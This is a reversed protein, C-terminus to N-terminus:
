FKGQLGVYFARGQPGVPYFYDSWTPEQNTLNNVGGYVSFREDYTYRLQVDHLERAPYYWQDPAVYDPENEMTARSFRRTEDFYSLGYNLAFDHWTWTADFTIQLEPAGIGGLSNTPAATGGQNFTLEKLVNGILRFDFRGVDHTIGFDAPDLRYNVTFDYGRTTYVAINQPLQEFSVIRGPNFGSDTREILDCFANPQPLDYCNNVITQGTFSQIADSIEIDYYDVSVSLGRVFKQPTFVFGWTQTEATEPELDPNGSIFGAVAESSNNIFTDPDVGLATLAAACNEERLAPNEGDGLNEVSCPDSFTSFTQTRGLFLDSINPARVARAKTGRLMVWDNVHWKGGYNWTTTEGMNSYDSWRYAGTLEVSQAFPLDRVIPVQIETFAERVDFLGRTRVGRGLTSFGSIDLSEALLEIDSPIYDSKEKRYEAGLVFSVPGAPLSFWQTSNGSVFATVVDQTIESTSEDETNIWDIAAPDAVGDGFINLPLCGSNPGPTFTTGFTAPDFEFQGFVDGVPAASPDLNSRCVPDGDDDLVVDTAALFRENIRVNHAFLDQKAKGHVASVELRLTDSLKLEAGGAIRVTERSVDYNQTGLDFNDRAVLIFDGFGGPAEAGYVPDTIVNEPIFPNDTTVFLGYEYSPQAYFGTETQVFKAEGFLTMVPSAEYRGSVNFTHREVGPILDDNFLDLLSGSGGIMFFGGAYEGDIFPDGNGLFAVGSTSPSEDFGFGTYISGAPNTDIYRVNTALVNDYIDPDDDDGFTGPDEPNSILIVREGPYTYSRDRFTLRDQHNYEYAATLNLREDFFNHGIVGSFFNSGGGGEDTWTHQARADVGEFNKKMIFNVVGSV